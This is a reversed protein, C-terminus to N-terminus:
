DNKRWKIYVVNVIISILTVLSLIIGTKVDKQPSFNLDFDSSTNKLYFGNIMSYFPFNLNGNVQWRRDYHDSFVLWKANKSLNRVSYKTPNVQNYDVPLYNAQLYPIIESINENEKLYIIKTKNILNNIMQEKKLFDNKPIIGLTNIMVFGGKNIMELSVEGKKLSLPGLISWKFMQPTENLLDYEKGILSVKIGASSTANTYRLSLYYNDDQSVNLKFKIKENIVTSFAVGKGYDFEYSEIDNLLLDYKWALYEESSRFKWQNELANNISIMKEQFFSMLLDNNNKNIFILLMDEPDIKQLDEPNVKGQELFVFGQNSLNFNKINLLSNYIDEGGVVFFVKKQAFIHPMIENNIYGSFSLHWNIKNLLSIGDIFNLFKQKEIKEETTLIKKRENEPVFIYKIGLLNFWQKLQRNHLFNYLDYKGVIMSAFPREKYLSNASIVSKEFTSYFKAPKEEIYLSRFFSQDQSLKNFIQQYDNDRTQNLQGLVGSLNGLIAPYILLLLYGYILVTIGIFLIKNKFIKEFSSITFSLLVGGTLILPTYFKSADRFAIGGTINNIIWIYIEGLPDSGGKSIFVFLLFLLSFNLILKIENKKFKSLFILNGLIIILLFCFYFPTPSLKGFQNFPFHPQFLFFSNTLNIFNDNTNMSVFNNSFFNLLTPLVWFLCLGLISLGLIVFRTLLVTWKKTKSIIIWTLLCFLIAIFGVRLDINLLLFFSFLAFLYNRINLKELYNLIALVTLPFIGYALAVGVQGGDILMLFYTNFGYLFSGLFKGYINQNFKGIFKWTGFIALITAPFYFILRILIDNSIGLYHNLIGYVYTPLYLWLIYFQPSGFNDHRFNWTFPFNFLEKLNEPIFFPADGFALSGNKFFVRFILLYPIVFGLFIFIIKLNRNM